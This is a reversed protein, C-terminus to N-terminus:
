DPPRGLRAALALLQRAQRLHPHDLMRDDLRVVGAEPAAAFAAVVREAYAIEEASPTFTRNIVPVQRPHIALKGAFGDRRATRVSEALTAEDGLDTEVTDIAPVGAAAAALLTLSRALAYPGTWVGEATRNRLAGIAAALDEGGWTLGALRAGAGAALAGIDLVAQPTETVIPLMRIGGRALGHAAELADLRDALRALDAGSRPKPVVVGDPAAPAVAVLDDLLWDGAPANVRVWLAPGGDRPARLRETVLRRAEPKRAPTVSDELDLILADAGAAGARELKRPDDGPVFLWSRLM